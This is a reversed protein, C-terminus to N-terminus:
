YILMDVILESHAYANIKEIIEKKRYHLENKWCSNNLKIHLVKDKFFMNITHNAASEGIINKWESIILQQYMETDLKSDKLFSHISESLSIEGYIRNNKM